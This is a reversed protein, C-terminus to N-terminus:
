DSAKKRRRTTARTRKAPAPSPAPEPQEPEPEPQEEVARGAAILKTAHAEPMDDPIVYLGATYFIEATLVGRYDATLNIKM